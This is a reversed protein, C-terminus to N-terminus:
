PAPPQSVSSDLDEDAAAQRRRPARNPAKKKFAGDFENSEMAASLDTSLSHATTHRRSLPSSRGRWLLFTPRSTSTDNTALAADAADICCPTCPCGGATNGPSGLVSPKPVSWPRQSTSSCRERAAAPSAAGGLRKLHTCRVKEREGGWPADVQSLRNQSGGRRETRLAIAGLACGGGCVGGATSGWAM